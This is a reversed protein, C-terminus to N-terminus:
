AGVSSGAVALRYGSITDAVCREWSFRDSRTLSRAALDARLEPNDHLRDLAASLATVDLPEVMVAADGVVEPLSSTNSAVVPVGCAMAELAPLGFGEYLPVFVFVEAGSYLAALDSDAVFGTEIIPNGPVLRRAKEIAADIGTQHWGATGALVLSVGALRGSAALSAFAEVVSTTNKRPERTNVCLVYPGDPIRYRRRVAAHRSPDCEHFFTHRDFGLHTVTVREAAFGTIRCFDQKTAESICLIWDDPVISSLIRAFVRRIQDPFHQPMIVPLMDYITLVRAVGADRSEEPFPAFPSHLIDFAGGDWVSPDLRPSSLHQAARWSVFRSVRRVFPPLALRDFM